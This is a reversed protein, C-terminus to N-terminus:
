YSPLSSDRESIQPLPSHELVSLAASMCACLCECKRKAETGGVRGWGAGDKERERERERSFDCLFHVSM